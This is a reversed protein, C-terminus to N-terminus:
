AGYKFYVKDAIEPLTTKLENYFYYLWLEVMLRKEILAKCRYLEFFDEEFREFYSVTYSTPEITLNIYAGDFNICFIIKTLRKKEFSTLNNELDEILNKIKQIRYQNDKFPDHFDIYDNLMAALEGYNLDSLAKIEVKREMKRDQKTYYNM